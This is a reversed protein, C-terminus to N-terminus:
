FSIEKSKSFKMFILMSTVTLVNLVTAFAAAPGDSGRSVQAYIALTLTITKRNYLIVGTALETIITVWSLIAGSLIGNKMMPVTAKFFAEM